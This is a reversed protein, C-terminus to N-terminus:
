TSLTVIVCLESNRWRGGMRKEGMGKEKERESEGRVAGSSCLGVRLFEIRGLSVYRYDYELSLINVRSVDDEELPCM